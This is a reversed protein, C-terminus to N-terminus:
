STFGEQDAASPYRGTDIFCQRAGSSATDALYDPVIHALASYADAYAEAVAEAAEGEPDYVTEDREPTESAAVLRDLLAVLAARDIVVADPAPPPPITM